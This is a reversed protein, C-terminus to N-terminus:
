NRLRKGNWDRKGSAVEEWESRYLCIMRSTKRQILCERGPSKSSIRNYSDNRTRSQYWDGARQIERSSPYVPQRQIQAPSVSPMAGAVLLPMLLYRKM